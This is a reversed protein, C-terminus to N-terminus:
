RPLTTLSFNARPSPQPCLNISVATKTAEKARFEALIAEIDEEALEKEGGDGKAAKQLVLYCFYGEHRNVHM